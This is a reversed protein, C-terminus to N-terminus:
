STEKIADLAAKAMTGLSPSNRVWARVVCWSNAVVNQVFRRAGVSGAAIPAERKIAHRADRPQSCRSRLRQEM